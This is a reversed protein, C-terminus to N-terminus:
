GEQLSILYAQWQKVYATLLCLVGLWLRPCSVVKLLLLTMHPGAGHAGTVLLSGSSSLWSVRCLPLQTILPGSNLASDDPASLLGSGQELSLCTKGQFSRFLPCDTSQEGFMCLCSLTTSSQRGDGLCDELLIFWVQGTNKNRGINLYTLIWLQRLKILYIKYM